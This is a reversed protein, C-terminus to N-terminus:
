SARFRILRFIRKSRGKGRRSGGRQKSLRGTPVEAKQIQPRRVSQQPPVLGGPRRAPVPFPLEGIEIQTGDCGLHIWPRPVPRTSDQVQRKGIPRKITHDGGRHGMMQLTIIVDNRMEPAGPHRPPQNQNAIQMPIKGKQHAKPEVHAQDPLAPFQPGIRGERDSATPARALPASQSVLGPERARADPLFVSRPDERGSSTPLFGTESQRTPLRISNEAPSGLTTM